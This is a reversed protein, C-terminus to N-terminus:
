GRVALVKKFKYMFFGKIKLKVVGIANPDDECLVKIIFYVLGVVGLFFMGITTSIFAILPFGIFFSTTILGVFVM